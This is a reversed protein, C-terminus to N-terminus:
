EYRLAVTPDVHTARFAPVCCAFLAVLLLLSATAAFTLPDTASVGYLQGALFRSLALSGALGLAIGIGAMGLGYGLVLQLIDRRGAGVAVRVGLEHTRQEVTYSVVGFLGVIALVLGAAAFVGFLLSTLRRQAVSAAVYDELTRVQYVPLEADMQHVQERIAPVIQNPDGSTRVTLTMSDLPIQDFPVYSEPDSTQWLNRHKVDGVVGVIERMLEKGSVSVGPKIHKGIPNEGPFIRNALTQNVIVVPSSQVNDHATFERGQILPIRMTRFYDPDISRFQTRPLDSQAIPRGEIEFTTRIIEDSLPLPEVGSATLVGPIPRIRQLLGRYFSAVQEPKGYRVAPLDVNFTIVGRPEFGPSTRLLRVMSEVLLGAGTLLVLSVAVEAIVLAKRMRSRGKGEAATRGGEKLTRFLDFRLSHFAPAIGFLLGTLIAVALTFALARSDVEAGALRPIKLSPMATLLRTGWIALLLGTLGGALALLVSETLLQRLVRARGAGMAVRVSIETQRAAARALLLNATNVCAILLLLAVAGLILLLAPRVEGVLAAIEPQTALSLHGNTDPFQKELAAGVAAVDADAQELSVGPKLRAIAALFHAGRSESMPKEGPDSEQMSSMTIWVDSPQAGLPFQFQPPMVGAVTYRKGDLTISHRQIEPDAGFRGRWLRDSVIAIRLGKQDESDAFVRGLEPTARLVSFLSASVQVGPLHVPEGAETLTFSAPTYAAISELTHNQSRLDAFDPYSVPRGREGNRLDLGHVAVLRDPEPFPLPRLLVANVVSFIATNAGIGLALTLIAILTFSPKKALMRLGYRVDHWLAFM